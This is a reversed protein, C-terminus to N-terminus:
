KQLTVQTSTVETVNRNLYKELTVGGVMIPHSFAKMADDM